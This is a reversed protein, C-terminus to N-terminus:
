AQVASTTTSKQLSSVLRFEDVSYLCSTALLMLRQVALIDDSLHIGTIHKLLLWRCFVAKYISPTREISELSKLTSLTATTNASICFFALDHELHSPVAICDPGPSAVAVSLLLFGKFFM